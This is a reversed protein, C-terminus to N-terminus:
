ILDNLTELEVAVLEDEEDQSASLPEAYFTSREGDPSTEAWYQFRKGDHRFGQFIKYIVFWRVREPLDTLEPCVLKMDAYALTERLQLVRAACQRSHQM